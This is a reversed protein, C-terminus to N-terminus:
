GQVNEGGVFNGIVEAVQIVQKRDIEPYMPLSLVREQAWESVQFDKKKFKLGKYPEQLHLSKPYYVMTQIGQEMLYSRLENRNLKDGSVCVTYYNYAHRNGEQRFPIDIGDVKRLLEKYMVAKDNRLSIWEGLHKLKVRLVAAHLEDLRSNFGDVAYDNPEKAGHVRLMRVTEAIEENNTVVMGGDGYAGLNKTPFFSLCGVDGISGVKSGKYEAGLAQAADEIVKLDHKRALKLIEDMDCAQGYLHVLIIARTKKSIKKKIKAPDINYTKPDIDVFVPKAGCHNIVEATAVFTFPTTIVEDGPGIGCALLSLRLADTGSAVGVAHAVSCYSAMEEEFSGVEPGLIYTGSLVGRSIAVNIEQKISQYQAKLDVFPVSM